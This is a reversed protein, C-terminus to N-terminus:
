SRVSNNPMGCISFLAGCHRFGDIINKIMNNVAELIREIDNAGEYSLGNVSAPVDPVDSPMTIAAKINAVSLIYDNMEAQTPQDTYNYDNRVNIYVSIGTAALRAQLYTCADAVRNLDIANYSVKLEGLYAAVEAPTATGNVIKEKIQKALDVDASTRNIVMTPMPM